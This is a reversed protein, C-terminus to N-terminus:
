TDQYITVLTELVGSLKIRLNCSTERVADCALLSGITISTYVEM